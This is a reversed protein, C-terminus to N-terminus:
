TEGVLELCACCCVSQLLIWRFESAWIGPSWFKPSKTCIWCAGVPWQEKVRWNLIGMAKFHRIKVCFHCEVVAHCPINETGKVCLGIHIPTSIRM